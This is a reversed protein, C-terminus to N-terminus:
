SVALQPRATCRTEVAAAPRPAVQSATSLPTSSMAGGPASRCQPGIAQLRRPSRRLGATGHRRESSNSGRAIRHPTPALRTRREKCLDRGGKGEHLRCAAKQRCYRCGHCVPEFRCRFMWARSTATSRPTRRESSCRQGLRSRLVAMDLGRIRNRHQGHNRRRTPAIWTRPM